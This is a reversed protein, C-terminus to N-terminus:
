KFAAERYLIEMSNRQMGLWRDLAQAVRQDTLLKEMQERSEEFPPAQGAGASVTRDYFERVEDPSIQVEPRFRLETFRMARLGALLHDALEEATVRYRELAARYAADDSYAAKVQELMRAADEATPLPARMFEAEQLLLTQDVLRDAAKRRQEGSLDVPKQDLLAAVRLDSQSIVHKGVTVAIRDIIEAQCALAAVPIVLYLRFRM